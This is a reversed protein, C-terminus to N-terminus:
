EINITPICMYIARQAITYSFPLWSKNTYPRYSLLEHRIYYEGAVICNLMTIVRDNIVNYQVCIPVVLAPVYM